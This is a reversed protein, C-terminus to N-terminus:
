ARREARRARLEALLAAKNGFTVAGRLRTLTDLSDRDAVLREFLESFSEGERKMAALKRYVVDRITLTKVL